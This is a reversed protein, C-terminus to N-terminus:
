GLCYGIGRRTRILSEGQDGDLKARLACIASDVANSQVQRDAAYIHNEIDERSVPEGRHYALYELLRYERATMEVPTGAKTVTKRATDIVLDGVAIEPNKKAQARRALADIRAVLEDFSFPKVLYDDAGLRLGQVRDDVRDKASLILVHTAKGAERLKKLVSEGDLRPLMLDLVLVDYDTDLARELASAGDGCVDVAYGSKRLGRAVALQLRHSDEVFLIRM